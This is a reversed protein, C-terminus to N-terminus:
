CMREARGEAHTRFAVVQGHAQWLMGTGTWVMM